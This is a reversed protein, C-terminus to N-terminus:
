GALRQRVDTLLFGLLNKGRWKKPNNANENTAGMGIGWIRDRPSAEVVITGDTTKLFEHLEENQEFKALNGQLVIEVCNNDWTRKDFNKVQRGLAKATKPDPAVHIQELIDYDEFLRAKGAM